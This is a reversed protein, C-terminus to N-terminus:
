TAPLITPTKEGAEAMRRLLAKRLEERTKQHEASAVLNNKQHPDTQLDYLYAEKYVNSDCCGFRAKGRPAEVCYTWRKTRVARGCSSESIQVFVENPWDKASGNALQQLPRGVFYDPVAAGAANLITPTVDVISVLDNVVKGGAFGPGCAILSTRISDDHCSRKYEGNRTCFHCSHDTTYIVLTNDALGLKDLEERIRGVNEDVSACCGLYDPMEERWDGKTGDLDGPVRYDRYKEKSGHPGEFHGHDNQHHSEIYSVMLFFPNGTAASKRDRLYEIAWDTQADVRYRGEPFNRQKGQDDFM